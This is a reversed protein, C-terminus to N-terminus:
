TKLLKLKRVIAMPWGAFLAFILVQFFGYSLHVHKAIENYGDGFISALIVMWVVSASLLVLWPVQGCRQFLFRLFKVAAYLWAIGALAYLGIFLKVPLEQVLTAFSFFRSSFGMDLKDVDGGEIQGLYDINWKQTEPLAQGLM